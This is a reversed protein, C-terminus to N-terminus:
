FVRQGDLIDEANMVIRDQIRIGRNITPDLFVYGGSTLTTEEYNIGMFVAFGNRVLFIGRVQTSEEITYTLGEGEYHVLTDGLSLPSLDEAVYVFEPTSSNIRIYIQEDYEAGQRLVLREGEIFSTPIRLLTRTTIAAEPVRLWQEDCHSLIVNVNRANLYQLMNNRSSLALFSEFEGRRIISATMTEPRFWGDGQDILITYSQGQVWDEIQESPVFLAIYWINSEVIKFLTDGPQVVRNAQQLIDYDVRMRTQEPTLNAITDFTLTEELGDVTYVLIGSGRAYITQISRSLQEQIDNRQEVLGSVRGANETLLMNNRERLNRDVHERLQYVRAINGNTFMPVAEDVMTQIRQNLRAADQTFASIHRRADQLRWIDEDLVQMQETLESVAEEYISSVLGYRRVRDFEIYAFRVAGGIPATYVREDRIIIGPIELPTYIRGQGVVGTSINQGRTIQMVGRFSYVIAGLFILGVLFTISFSFQDQLARKRRYETLNATKKKMLPMVKKTCVTM